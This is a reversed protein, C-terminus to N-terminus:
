KGFGIIIKSNIKPCIMAAFVFFLRQLNTLFHKFTNEFNDKACLAVLIFCLYRLNIAIKTILDCLFQSEKFFMFAFTFALYACLVYM